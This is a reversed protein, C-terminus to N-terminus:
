TWTIGRRLVLKALDVTITTGVVSGFPVRTCIAGTVFRPVVTRMPAGIVTTTLFSFTVNLVFVGLRKRTM